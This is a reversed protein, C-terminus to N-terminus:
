RGDDGPSRGSSAAMIRSHAETGLSVLLVHSVV